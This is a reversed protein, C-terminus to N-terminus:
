LIRSFPIISIEYIRLFYKQTKGKLTEQGKYTLPVAINNIVSNLLVVPGIKNQPLFSAMSLALDGGKSVGSLGIGKSADIKPHNMM